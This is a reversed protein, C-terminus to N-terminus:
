DLQDVLAAAFFVAVFVALFAVLGAAFFVVRVLLAQFAPRAPGWPIM